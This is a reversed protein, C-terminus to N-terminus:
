ASDYEIHSPLEGLIDIDDASPNKVSKEKAPSPARPMVEMPKMQNDDRMVLKGAAEHEVEEFEGTTANWKRM